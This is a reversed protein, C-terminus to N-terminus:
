RLTMAVCKRNEKNESKENMEGSKQLHKLLLKGNPEYTGKGEDNDNDDDGDNRDDEDGWVDHVEGGAGWRREYGPQSTGPQCNM